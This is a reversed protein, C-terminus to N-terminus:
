VDMGEAEAQKQVKWWVWERWQGVKDTFVQYNKSVAFADSQSFPIKSSLLKQRDYIVIANKSELFLMEKPPTLDKYFIGPYKKSEKDELYAALEFEEFAQVEKPSMRTDVFADKEQTQKRLKSM